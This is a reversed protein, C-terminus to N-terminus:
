DQKSVKRTAQLAYQIAVIGGRNKNKNIENYEENNEILNNIFFEELKNKKEENNRLKEAINRAFSYKFLAKYRSNKLVNKGSSFDKKMRAIKLLKYVFSRSCGEVTNMYEVLQKGNKIANKYDEWSLLEGFVSVNVKKEYDENNIEKNKKKVEKLSDECTEAMFLPPTKKNFMEIACSFDIEKNEGVFKKFEKHLEIAFDFIADWSGILVFDDGGSYVVYIRDKYYLKENSISNKDEKKNEEKDDEKDKNKDKAIVPIIYGRDGTDILRVLVETFFFDFMRSLSSYRSLTLINEIKEHNNENIRRQVGFWFIAGLNNVDGKLMAIKDNGIAINGLNEFTLVKEDKDKDVPVHYPNSYRLGSSSRKVGFIQLINEYRKNKLINDANISEGLSIFSGPLINYSFSDNIKFIEKSIVCCDTSTLERGIDVLSECVDCFGDENEPNAARAECAPCLKFGEKAKDVLKEYSEHFIHGKSELIHQNKKLKSIEAKQELNKRIIKNFNNILFDNFTFPDSVTFIFSLQGFYREFVYEEIEKKVENLKNLYYDNSPIIMLLNGGGEFLINVQDLGLYDKIKQAIAKSIFSIEFSRARLMKASFTTKKIDYLYNQIGSTDVKLLRAFKIDNDEIIESLSKNFDKECNEWNDQYKEKLYLYLTSALSASTYSHDYLSIDKLEDNTASPICWLYKEMLRLLTSEFFLYFDANIRKIEEVFNKYHKEYEQKNLSFSINEFNGEEPHATQYGLYNLSYPKLIKENKGFNVLSFPSTLPIERFKKSDESARKGIRDVGASVSDAISIIKQFITNPNHHMASIDRISEYSEFCSFINKNDDFFKATYGAHKYAYFGSVNPCYVKADEEKLTQSDSARQYFKGIDHLLAATVIEKLSPERATKGM